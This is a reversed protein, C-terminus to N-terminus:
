IEMVEYYNREGECMAPLTHYAVGDIENNHGPHYHGQIVRKVKGSGSIVNRVQEANSLIHQWQVDPDVNQHIFVYVNTVARDALVTKLSEMQDDPLMTDTWDVCGPLYTKGDSDYNADLFVLMDSGMKLSFPPKETGIGEYFQEETFLDCDHNGRLCYFPVGVSRILLGIERLKAECEQYTECTDVLDGLCVICDVDHFEEMAQHIKGLSLSPRRTKNSVEKSSYHSDTFIGIKM